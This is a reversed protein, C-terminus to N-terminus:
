YSYVGELFEINDNASYDRSFGIGIHAAMFLKEEDEAFAM